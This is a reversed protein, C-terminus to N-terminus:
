QDIYEAEAENGKPIIVLSKPTISTGIGRWGDM